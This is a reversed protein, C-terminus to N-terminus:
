AHERQDCERHLEHRREPMHMELVVTECGPV